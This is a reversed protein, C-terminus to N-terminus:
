QSLMLDLGGVKNHYTRVAVFHKMMPVYGDFVQSALKLFPWLQLVMTRKKHGGKGGFLLKDGQDFGHTFDLISHEASSTHRFM